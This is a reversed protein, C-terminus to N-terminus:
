CEIDDRTEEEEQITANIGGSVIIDDSPKDNKDKNHHDGNVHILESDGITSFKEHSLTSRDISTITMSSPAHQSIGVINENTEKLKEHLTKFRGALYDLKVTMELKPQQADQENKNWITDRNHRWEKHEDIQHHL